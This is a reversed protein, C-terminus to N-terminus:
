ILRPAQPSEKWFYSGYDFTLQTGPLIEQLAVFIMRPIGKWYVSQLGLNPNASHNIFRTFNGRKEADVTFNKRTINWVSYRVCYQKDKLLKSAKQQICGTYEGLYGCPPIRQEAFVGYGVENDVHRISVAPHLGKQIEKDFYVGLWIKEPLIADELKAKRTKQLVEEFVKESEFVPCSLYELDEFLEDPFSVNPQTRFSSSTQPHLHALCTKRDLFLALELPTLGQGNRRMKLSPDEILKQVWDAKQHLIALHLLTNGGQTTILRNVPHKHLPTQSEKLLAEWGVKREAIQNLIYQWKLLQERKEPDTEILDIGM